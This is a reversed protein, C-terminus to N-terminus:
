KVKIGIVATRSNGSMDTATVTVIYAGARSWSHNLQYPYGSGLHQVAVVSGDGWNITYVVPLGEPDLSYGSITQSIGAQFSKPMNVTPATPVLNATVAGQVATISFSTSGLFSGQQGNQVTYVYSTYSGVDNPCISTYTSPVTFVGNNQINGNKYQLLWIQSSSYGDVQFTYTDGCSVTSTKFPGKYFAPSGTPAPAVATSAPNITFYAM